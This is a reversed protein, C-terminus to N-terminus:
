KLLKKAVKYGIGVGLGFCFSALIRGLM